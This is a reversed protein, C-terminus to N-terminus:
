NVIITLGADIALLIKLDVDFTQKAAYRVSAIRGNGTLEAMITGGSLKTTSAHISVAGISCMSKAVDKVLVKSEDRTTIGTYGEERRVPTTM